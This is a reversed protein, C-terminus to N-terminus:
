KASSASLSLMGLELSCVVACVGVARLEDRWEPLPWATMAVVSASAVERVRQATQQCVVDSAPDAQLVVLDVLSAPDDTMTWGQRSLEDALARALAPDVIEVRARGRERASERASPPSPVLPHLELLVEDRTATPPFATREGALIALEHEIRQRAAWIPVRLAPPWHQRTRGASECWWGCVCVVRALPVAAVLRAVHEAPFEDPWSQLVLVLDPLTAGLFLAGEVAAVDCLVQWKEEQFHGVLVERM